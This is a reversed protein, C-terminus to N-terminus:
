VDYCSASMFQAPLVCRLVGGSGGVKVSWAREGAPGCPEEMEHRHWKKAQRGRQSVMCGSSCVSRADYEAEEDAGSPEEDPM